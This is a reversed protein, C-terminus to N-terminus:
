GKRIPLFTLYSVGLQDMQNEIWQKRDRLYSTPRRVNMKRPNPLVAALYAADVRSLRSPPKRFFTEAAASVGYVGDGFEAINLYVEVIREKSWFLELLVTFYAELGKRLFSKGPWLFLNKATQQTITSAGRIRTGKKNFTMAKSISDFDFGFHHPFKQDEAAIVALVVLPSVTQLNVWDCHIDIKNKGAFVNEIHRRIMFASTPPPVWRLCIVLLVSLGVLILLIQGIRKIFGTRTNALVLGKKVGRGQWPWRNRFLYSAYVPDEEVM